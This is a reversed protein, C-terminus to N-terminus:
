IYWIQNYLYQKKRQAQLIGALQILGHQKKVQCSVNRGRLGDQFETTYESSGLDLM